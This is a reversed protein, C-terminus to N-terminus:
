FGSSVRVSGNLSKIVYELSSQKNLFINTKSKRKNGRSTRIQNNKQPVGQIQQNQEESENFQIRQRAQWAVIRQYLSTKKKILKRTFHPVNPCNQNGENVYHKQYRHALKTDTNLKHKFGWDLMINM